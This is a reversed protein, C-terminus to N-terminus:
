GGQEYRFCFSADDRVLGKVMDLVVTVEYGTYDEPWMKINILVKANTTLHRSGM